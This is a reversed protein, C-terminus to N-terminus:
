VIWANCVLEIFCTLSESPWSAHAMTSSIGKSTETEQRQPFFPFLLM